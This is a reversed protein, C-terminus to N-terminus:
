IEVLVAEVPKGTFQNLASAYLGLQRRYRHDDAPGTKFDVITWRHGDTFALDIVGEIIRGDELRLTLPYERHCRVAAAAAQFVPLNLACAVAQVAWEIEDERVRFRRAQARAIADVRDLPVGPSVRQLVAHVLKGFNRGGVPRPPSAATVIAPPSAECAADSETAAVIRFAPQAGTEITKARQGAWERYRQKGARVQEPTGKLLQENVLADPEKEALRLLAPDFWTVAGGGARAYHLGPKVSLEERISDPRNLVTRDAFPPCGPSKGAVRWRDRAPYLAPYLPGLWSEEPVEEGNACVVLLDWARTAAVYAVRGAEHRDEEAEEDRHEILQAPACGLLRQACIGQESNIWRDGGDVGTLKCTLDALIVVPFELGKAKHVTMLKVGPLDQELVTAEAAAGSAAEEELYEVFSRFSTASTVEFSRALDLLRYVNALVREGGVRFAFGAHARAAKLLDNLTDAILRQNRQRHLDALLALVDRVPAFELDLDDPLALFPHFSGFRARFKLLTGDPIAFLGGHLVAFVSLADDPWEIARLATRLTGIEERTHFSKSGVVTHDISRAELARAYKRTLDEGFSTFRRFLVCIDKAEIARRRDSEPRDRVQWRSENVLWDVFAAVARPSCADIAKKTIKEAAESYPEPIPLAVISPQTAPAEPGGTLPLYDPIGGDGFAANVFAQIAATSRRSVPLQRTSVGRRVLDAIISTYTRIDARRFRYISQKPDGALFLKGAAPTIARWETAAPDDAALLLLIEAQLPDTDQFEDVLIRSWQQQLEARVTANERLLRATSILLDNFDLRGASQKEREYLPALQWLEDRLGAAFDADSEQKFLGISAKLEEWMQVVTERPVDRAFNGSGKRFFRLTRPLQLLEAEIADEDAAGLDAARDLRELFDAVPRLSQYLADYTPRACRARLDILRRARDLVPAMLTARDFSRAEWPAPHDRWEILRWATDRIARLPDRGEETSVSLRLFCRKLVPSPNALRGEIWRRFLRAFMRQADSDALEQFAPDVGAEVPYRHLIFSCLSHITGIFAKDLQQLAHILRQREAPAIASRARRDLRERVRLKMQGAAADTFTVAVIQEIAGGAAIADVLREVVERTKGTGASAEVIESASLSAAAREPTV